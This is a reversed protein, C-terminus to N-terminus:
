SRSDQRAWGITTKRGSSQGGKGLPSCLARRHRKKEVGDGQTMKDVGMAQFGM